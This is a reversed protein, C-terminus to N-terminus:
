FHFDIVGGFYYTEGPEVLCRMFFDLTAYENETYIYYDYEYNILRMLNHMTRESTSFENLTLNSVLSVFEEYSKKFYMQKADKNFTITENEENFVICDGLSEAFFKIEEKRKEESELDAVYDAVSGVFNNYFRSENVRVNKKIPKKELEIILSHM